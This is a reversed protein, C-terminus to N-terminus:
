FLKQHWLPLSDVQWHLLCLLRPNSGQTPFIGQLLFCCDVGTNKGPFDWPCHLRTPQLRYPQLSDSVVSHSLLVHVFFGWFRDCRIIIIIIVVLCSYWIYSIFWISNTACIGSTTVSLCMFKRLDLRKEQMEPQTTICKTAQILINWYGFLIFLCPALELIEILHHKQQLRSQTLFLIFWIFTHLSVWM